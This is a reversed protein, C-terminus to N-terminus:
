IDLLPPSSPESCSEDKGTPDMAEPDSNALAKGASGAILRTVGLLVAPISFAPAALYKPEWVPDFKEKYARLGEFNYFNDGYKFITNGIKHWMPALPHKELGSLPAMGSNFYQYGQEKGWLMLQIFLFEMIGPPADPLYRMMDISLEAKSETEWLNAFALPVGDKEIVACRCQLMYHPTFYGLSFGKEQGKKIKLWADSIQQFTTMAAKVQAQEYIQFTLGQKTLKNNTSRLGSRRGGKLDFDPLFVRAEEGLKILVLGLDLYLPLNEKSVQYFAIGAGNEDAKERFRWVLEETIEPNGIPDGMAIWHRRTTGFMIFGQNDKGKIVAKDGTLVLHAQTGESQRVIPLLADIERRDIGPIRRHAVGMLRYIGYGVVLVAMLLTSRLFRPADKMYAFQWWLDNSYEVHKYSFLGLWITGVLIIGVFSLWAWSLPMNLLSSKRYFFRRCPLFLVVLIFLVLAEQWDFGKLLSAPVGAALLGLVGFYAADIRLRVARAMFLMLLGVLSGTLHSVELIPLPLADHLWALAAHESPTAGSALLLGGSLALLISLIHPIGRSLLAQVTAANQKVQARRQMLEYGLLGAGAVGLPVFYYMVRFVLLASFVSSGPIGDGMLFLFTGEFVGLGGPVQSFLGVMQASLYAALFHQFSIGARGKLLLYLILSSLLIDLAAAVTQAATLGPSPLSLSMGRIVFPKKKLLVVSWYLSLLGFSILGLIWFLKPFEQLGTMTFLTLGISSFLLTGAGLIYMLSIFLSFKIIDMGSLGWMSYFRYRMSSGSILAQGITNSISFSILSAPIVKKPSVTKKLYRLALFDYGSLCLYNLATLALCLLILLNPLSRIEGMVQGLTHLKMEHHVMFLAVCFLVLSLYPAARKFLRELM